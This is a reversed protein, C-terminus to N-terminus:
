EIHAKPSLFTLVTHHWCGVGARRGVGSRCWLGILSLAVEEIKLSGPDTSISALVRSTFVTLPPVLQASLRAECANLDVRLGIVKQLFGATPFHPRLRNRHSLSSDWRCEGIRCLRVPSCPALLHTRDNVKDSITFPLSQRPFSDKEQTPIVVHGSGSPETQRRM